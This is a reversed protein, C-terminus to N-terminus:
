RLSGTWDCDTCTYLGVGNITPAECAPCALSGAEGIADTTERPRLVGRAHGAPLALGTSDTGYPFPADDTTSEDPRSKTLQATM